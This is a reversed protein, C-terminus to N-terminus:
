IYGIGKYMSRMGEWIYSPIAPIHTIGVALLPFGVTGLAAGAAFGLGPRGTYLGIYFLGQVGFMLGLTMGFGIHEDECYQTDCLGGAIYQLDFSNLERM